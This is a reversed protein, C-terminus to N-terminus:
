LDNGLFALLFGVLSGVDIFITLVVYPLEQEPCWLCTLIDLANVYWLDDAGCKSLFDRFSVVLRLVLLMVFLYAM